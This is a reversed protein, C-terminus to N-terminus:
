DQWRWAFGRGGRNRRRRGRGLGDERRGSSAPPQDDDPTSADPEADPEKDPLLRCRGLNWGTRPGRGLPGTRDLGPM